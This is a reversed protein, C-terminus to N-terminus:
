GNLTLLSAASRSNQEATQLLKIQMDYHRQTSIMNV